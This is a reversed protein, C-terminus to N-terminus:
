PNGASKETPAHAAASEAPKPAPEQAPLARVVVLLWFVVLFRM